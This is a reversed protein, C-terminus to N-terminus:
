CARDQGRHSKLLEAAVFVLHGPHKLLSGLWSNRRRAQLLHDQVEKPASASDVGDCFRLLNSGEKGILHTSIRPSVEEVHSEVVVNRGEPRYRIVEILVPFVNRKALAQESLPRRRLCELQPPLLRHRGLM